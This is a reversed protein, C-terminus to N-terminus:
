SRLNRLYRTGKLRLPTTVGTRPGGRLARPDRKPPFLLMGEETPFCRARTGSPRVAPRRSRGFPFDFIVATPFAVRTDPVFGMTMVSNPGRLWSSQLRNEGEGTEM